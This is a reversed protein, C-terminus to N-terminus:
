ARRPMPRRPAVAGGVKGLPRALSGDPNLPGHGAIFARAGVVRVFAFPLRGAPPKLPAPLTLGLAILRQEIRAM